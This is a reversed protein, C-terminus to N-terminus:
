LDTDPEFGLRRSEVTENKAKAALVKCKVQEDGSSPAPKRCEAFERFIIASQAVANFIIPDKTGWLERARLYEKTMRPQPLSGLEADEVDNHMMDEDVHMPFTETLTVSEVSSSDAAIKDGNSRQKNNNESGCIGLIWSLSFLFSAFVNLNAGILWDCDWYSGCWSISAITSAWQLGSAFLLLCSIVLQQKRPACLCLTQGFLLTVIALLAVMPGLFFCLQSTFMWSYIGNSGQWLFARSYSACEERALSSQYRYLGVTLSSGSEIAEDPLFDWSSTKAGASALTFWRCSASSYATFSIGLLTLMLVLLRIPALALLHM